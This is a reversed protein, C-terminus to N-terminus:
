ILLEGCSNFNDMTHHMEELLKEIRCNKFRCIIYATQTLSITYGEGALITGSNENFLKVMSNYEVMVAEHEKSLEFYLNRRYKDLRDKLMDIRALLCGIESLSNGMEQFYREMKEEIEKDSM